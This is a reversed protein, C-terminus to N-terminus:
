PELEWTSSDGQGSVRKWREQGGMGHIVATGDLAVGFWGWRAMLQRLSARAKTGPMARTRQVKDDISDSSM